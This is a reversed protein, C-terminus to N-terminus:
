ECDMIKKRGGQEILVRKHDELGWIESKQLFFFKLSFFVWKMKKSSEQFGM